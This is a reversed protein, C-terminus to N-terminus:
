CEDWTSLDTAEKVLEIEQLMRLIDGLKDEIESGTIDQRTVNSDNTIIAETKNETIEFKVTVM